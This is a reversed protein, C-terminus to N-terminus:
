GKNARISALAKNRIQRDQKAKKNAMNEHWQKDFGTTPNTYYPRELRTQEKSSAQLKQWNIKAM